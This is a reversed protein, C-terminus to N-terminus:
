LADNWDCHPSPAPNLTCAIGREKLNAALVIGAKQGAGNKDRDHGILVGEIGPPPLYNKMQGASLSADCVVRKKM